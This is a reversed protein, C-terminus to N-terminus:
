NLSVNRVNKMFFADSAKAWLIILSNGYRVDMMSRPNLNIGNNNIKIPAEIIPSINLEGSYHRTPFNSNLIRFVASNTKKIAKIVCKM